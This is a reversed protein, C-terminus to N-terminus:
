SARQRTRSNQPAGGRDPWRELQRECRLDIRVAHRALRCIRGPVAQDARALFCFLVAILAVSFWVWRKKQMGQRVGLGYMPGVM